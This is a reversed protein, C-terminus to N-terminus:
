SMYHPSDVPGLETVDGWVGDEIGNDDGGPYNIYTGGMNSEVFDPYKGSALLLGFKETAASSLVATYDIHVNTLRELENHADIEEITKYDNTFITWSTFSVKEETIPLTIETIVNSGSEESSGSTTSGSSDKGSTNGGCASLVSLLMASAMFISLIRKKM